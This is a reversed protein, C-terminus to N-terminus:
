TSIRGIRRSLDTFWMAGDPGAALGAIGAATPVPFETIAGGTTIRGIVDGSRDDERTFWLNGDPGAEIWGPYAAGALAYETITGNPTVKGIAPPYLQTFWINGDPGAAVGHLGTCSCRPFFFTFTGYPTMRGIAGPNYTAFWVNGDASLALDRIDQDPANGPVTFEQVDGAPTIRGIGSPYRFIGGFVLETWGPETFWVNGDVGRELQYLRRTSAAGTFEEIEGDPTIRGIRGRVPEAFWVNGDAGAAIGGQWIGNDGPLDFEAVSGSTTIRGVRDPAHDAEELGDGETFWLNGDPGRTIRLPQPNQQGQQPLPYWTITGAPTPPPSVSFLTSADASSGAGYATIWATGVEAGAPVQVSVNAFTGQSGAVVTTADVGDFAIQVLESPQFGSGSVSVTSGPPGFSPTVAIAPNATAAITRLTAEVVSVAAGAAYVDELFDRGAKAVNLWLGASTLSTKFAVSVWAREDVTLATKALNLSFCTLLADIAAGDHNAIAAWIQIECDAFLQAMFKVPGGPLFGIAKVLADYLYTLGDEGAYGYLPLNAEFTTRPRSFQAELVTGDPVLAYYGNPRTDVHYVAGGLTVRDPKTQFIVYSAGAHSSKARVQLRGDATKGACSAAIGYEGRATRDVTVWGPPSNTCSPKDTNIGTVQKVVWSWISFHTIRAVLVGAAADFETPVTRWAQTDDSWWALQVGEPSGVASVDYPIRLEVPVAPDSAARILVSPAAVTQTLATAGADPASIPAVEIWTGPPFAGAPVSLEVGAASGTGSVVTTEDSELTVAGPPKRAGTTSPLEPVGPRPSVAPPALPDVRDPPAIGPEVAAGPEAPAPASEGVRGSSSAACAVTAALLAALLAAVPRSPVRRM